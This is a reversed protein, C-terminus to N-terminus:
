TRRKTRRDPTAKPKSENHVWDAFATAVAPLARQRNQVLYLSRRLPLGKLRVSAVRGNWGPEFALGSVWGVGYGRDVGALIAQTSSVGMAVPHPPLTVGYKALAAQVSRLTGSGGERELFPQGELESIDIEGRNAFPHSAAVALLIEDEGTVEYRLGRGPLRAGVFGVDWRTDALEEVVQATDTIFVEPVVDPHLATFRAVLDPVIFEGTTTSAIISLDGSLSEEGAGLTSIFQGHREVADEAYVKFQEGALTLRLGGRRREVLVVELEREIKQIQRSVGPQTLRLEWAAGTFSKHRSVALFTEMETLEM